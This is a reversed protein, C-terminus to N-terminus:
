IQLGPLTYSLKSSNNLLAKWPIIRKMESSHISTFLGIRALLETKIM